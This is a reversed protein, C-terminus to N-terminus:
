TEVFLEICMKINPCGSGEFCIGSLCTVNRSSHKPGMWAGDVMWPM